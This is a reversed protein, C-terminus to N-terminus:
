HGSRNGSGWGVEMKCQVWLPSEHADTSVSAQRDLSRGCCRHEKVGVKGDKLQDELRLTYM